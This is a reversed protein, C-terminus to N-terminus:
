GCMEAASKPPEDIARSAPPRACEPYPERQLLFPPPAAREFRGLLESPNKLSNEDYGHAQWRGDRNARRGSNQPREIYPLRLGVARSFATSLVSIVSQDGWKSRRQM